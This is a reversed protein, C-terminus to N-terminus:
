PHDGRDNDFVSLASTPEIRDGARANSTAAKLMLRYSQALSLWRREVMLYDDRLEVSSATKAKCACYEAHQLCERIQESLEKLV